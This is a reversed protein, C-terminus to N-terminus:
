NAWRQEKPSNWNALVERWVNLENKKKKTENETEYLANAVMTWMHTENAAAISKKKQENNNLGATQLRYISAANTKTIKKKGRSNSRLSIRFLIANKKKDKRSKQENKKM